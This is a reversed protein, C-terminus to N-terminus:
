AWPECSVWTNVLDRERAGGCGSLFDHLTSSLCELTNCEFQLSGWGGVRRGVLFTSQSVSKTDLPPLSGAITQLDTFMASVAGLIAVRAKRLEPWIQMAKFRM